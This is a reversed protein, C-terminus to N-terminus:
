RANEYGDLTVRTGDEKLTVIYEGGQDDVMMVKVWGNQESRRNALNAAQIEFVERVKFDKVRKM